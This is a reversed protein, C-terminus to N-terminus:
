KQKCFDSEKKKSNISINKKNKQFNLKNGKKEEFLNQIKRKRNTARHVSDMFGMLGILGCKHLKVIRNSYVIYCM